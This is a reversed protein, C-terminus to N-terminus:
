PEWLGLAVPRPIVGVSAAAVPAHLMCRHQVHQRLFLLHAPRPGQLRPQKGESSERGKLSLTQELGRSFASPPTGVVALM